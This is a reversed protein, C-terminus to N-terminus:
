QDEWRCVVAGNMKKKLASKRGFPMPRFKATRAGMAKEAIREGKAKEKAERSTKQRACKIHAPGRNSMENSGGRWLPNEHEDWADKVADIKQGCICCIGRADLFMKLKQKATLPKRRAVEYPNHLDKM